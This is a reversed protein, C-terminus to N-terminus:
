SLINQFLQDVGKIIKNFDKLFIHKDIFKRSLIIRLRVILKESIKENKILSLDKFASFNKALFLYLNKTNDNALVSEDFWENWAYVVEYYSDWDSEVMNITFEASYDTFWKGFNEFERLYKKDVQNFEVLNDLNHLASSIKLISKTLLFEDSQIIM